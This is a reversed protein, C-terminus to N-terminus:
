NIPKHAGEEKKLMMVLLIIDLALFLGFMAVFVPEEKTIYYGPSVILTYTLLGSAVLYMNFGWRKRFLLGLGGILLATATLIEAIVHLGIEAPKTEIEPVADTIIFVSWMGIMSIGIFLCYFAAIRRLEM